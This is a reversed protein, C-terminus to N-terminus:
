KKLKDFRLISAKSEPEKRSGPKTKSARRIAALLGDTSREDMEMALKDLDIGGKPRRPKM